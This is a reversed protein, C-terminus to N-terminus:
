QLDKPSIWSVMGNESIRAMYGTYWSHSIVMVKSSTPFLSIGSFRIADLLLLRPRECDSSASRAPIVVRESRMYSFPSISISLMDDRVSNTRELSSPHLMSSIRFPHGGDPM